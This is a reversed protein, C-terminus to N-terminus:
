KRRQRYFGLGLLGAGFLIFTSPEPVAPPDAPDRAWVNVHSFDKDDFDAANFTGSLKYPTHFNLVDWNNELSFIEVFDFDYVAFANASKFSFALHDFSNEGLLEQVDDIIDLHTELSWTGANFDFTIDLLDGIDLILNPALLSPGSKSYYYGNGDKVESSGTIEGEALSSDGVQINVLHIWGPDNFIGDGDLDQFDARDVFEEGTFHSVLDGSANPAYYIGEGNLLGDGFQGINPNPHSVPDDNGNNNAAGVASPTPVVDKVFMGVCGTADYPGYALLNADGQNLGPTYQIKDLTVNSPDCLGSPITDASAFTGSVILLVTLLGLLLIVRRLVVM